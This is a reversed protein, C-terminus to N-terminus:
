NKEIVEIYDKSIGFLNQDTYKLSEKTQRLNLM